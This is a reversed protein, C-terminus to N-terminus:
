IDLALEYFTLGFGLLIYNKLFEYFGSFYFEDEIRVLRV